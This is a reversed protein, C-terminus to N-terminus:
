NKMPELLADLNMGDCFDMFEDRLSAIHHNQPIGLTMQVSFIRAGTQAAPYSRANLEMVEIDRSIFFQIVGSLIGTKDSATLDVAYPIRDIHLPTRQTRRAVVAAGFKDALRNVQQEMRAIGDWNGDLLLVIGLHHGLTSQKAEVINCGTQNIQDALRRLLDPQTKGLLTIALLQGNAAGGANEKIITSEGPANTRRM